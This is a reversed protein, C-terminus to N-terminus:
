WPLVYEKVAYKFGGKYWDYAFFCAGAIPIIKGGVKKGVKKGIRKAVNRWGKEKQIRKIKTRLARNEKSDPPTNKYLNDLEQQSKGYLPDGGGSAGTSGERGDLGEEDFLDTPQSTVYAYVNTGGWLGIPDRQMFRGSAADYYRYGVHLLGFEDHAQYGWSGIYGYRHNTGDIREGFATYTVNGTQSGGFVSQSRRTGILDGHEYKTTGFGFEAIGPQFADLDTVPSGNITFDRYATDGGAGDAEWTEGLIYTVTEDNRAHQLPTRRYQTL